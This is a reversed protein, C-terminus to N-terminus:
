DFISPHKKYLYVYKSDASIGGKKDTELMGKKHFFTEITQAIKNSRANFHKWHLPTEDNKHKHVSFRGAPDRTIGVYWNSYDVLVYSHTKVWANVQKVISKYTATQKPDKEM